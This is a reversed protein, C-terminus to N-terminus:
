NFAISIKQYISYSFSDQYINKCISMSENVMLAANKM